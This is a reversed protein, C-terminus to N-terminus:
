RDLATVINTDSADNLRAEIRELRRVIEEYRPQEAREDTEVFFVAVRATLLGFLTIGILMLLVAVGRGAATKPYVDGYGVTTITAAAWWLADAFTQISGDGGREAIYVLLSATGVALLSATGIVGLTRERLVTRAETWFRVGVVVLRLLRLPRVFPVVVTVVDMWHTVLYRRRDPALYTKVILEFAFAAWVIWTIAEFTMEWEPSVDIAEPVAIVVLFVIALLLMPVETAREVRAFLIQRHEVNTSLSSDRKKVSRM